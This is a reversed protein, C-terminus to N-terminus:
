PAVVMVAAKEARLPEAVRLTVAGANTLAVIEGPFTNTGMPVVWCSVASPLYESPLECSMVDVPDHVEDAVFMAVTLEVPNTVPTLLPSAVIDTDAPPRM